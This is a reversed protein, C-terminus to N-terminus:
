RTKRFRRRWPPLLVGDWCDSSPCNETSPGPEANIRDSGGTRGLSCRYTAPLPQAGTLRLQRLTATTLRVPTMRMPPGTPEANGLPTATPIPPISAIMPMAVNSRVGDCALHLVAVVVRSPVRGRAPNAPRSYALGESACRVVWVLSSPQTNAAVRGSVCARACRLAEPLSNLM